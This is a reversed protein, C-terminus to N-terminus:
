SAEELYPRLFAAAEPSLVEILVGGHCPKPLCWCGLVQGMLAPLAALLAPQGLLYQRYQALV